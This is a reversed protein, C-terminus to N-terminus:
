RVREPEWGLPVVYSRGRTPCVLRVRWPPEEPQLGFLVVPHHHGLLAACLPCPGVDNTTIRLTVPAASGPKYVELTPLSATDPMGVM